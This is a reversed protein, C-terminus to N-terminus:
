PLPVGLAKLLVRPVQVRYYSASGADAGFLSLNSGAGAPLKPLREAEAPPLIGRMMQLLGNLDFDAYLNGGAPFIRRATLSPRAGGQAFLGEAAEELKGNFSFVIFKGVRAVEYTWGNMRQFMAQQAPNQPAEGGAAPKFSFQYVDVPWGKVKRAAQKVSISFEIGVKKYCDKVEPKDLMTMGKRTLDFYAQANDSLMLGHGRIWANEVASLTMAMHAPGGVKGWEEMIARAEKMAPMNDFASGYMKKWFAAMQGLDRSSYQLRMAGAPLLPMLDPASLPAPAAQAKREAIIVSLDLAEPQVSLGLSLSRLGEVYALYSSLMQAMDKPSPAGPQQAQAMLAPMSSLAQIGDRLKSGYTTLIAELNAYALVDFPSQAQALAALDDKSQAARERGRENIALVSDEGLADIGTVGRLGSLASAKTPLLAAMPINALPADGPEWVFFAAPAGPRLQEVTMPQAALAKRAQEGGLDQILKQPDRVRVYGFLGKDAPDRPLPVAVQAAPLSAPVPPEKKPSCAPIALLSLLALSRRVQLNM